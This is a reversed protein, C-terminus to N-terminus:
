RILTYRLEQYLLNIKNIQFRQYDPRRNMVRLKSFLKERTTERHLSVSLINFNIYMVFYNRAECIIFESEV